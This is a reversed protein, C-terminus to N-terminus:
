PCAFPADRVLVFPVGLGNTYSKVSGSKTDTLSLGIEVDTLGAAYVAWRGNVACFDLTKVVVEVNDRGFFWFYGTDNTLPVAQADGSQGSYDRWTARVQFRSGNLCLTRGDATCTTGSGSRTWWTWLFGGGFGVQNALEKTAHYALTSGGGMPHRSGTEFLPRAVTTLLAPEGLVSSALAVSDAAAFLWNDDYPCMVSEDCYDWNPDDECLYCMRLTATAPDFLRQVIYDVRRRLVSRAAADDGLGAASRFVLYQGMASVMTTQINHRNCCVGTRAEVCDLYKALSAALDLYERDGTALYASTMAKIVHAGTRSGDAEEFGDCTWPDGTSCRRLGSSASCGGDDLYASNVARWFVADAAEIASDLVLLDGTLFAHLFMGPPAGTMSVSPNMYNRHPNVNGREDHYGHGYMGGDPWSRTGTRGRNKSHLLDVDAAHRAGATGLRWWTEDGTRLAQQLMGRLTDYKLNWPSSLVGATDFPEFDTPVDGYDVWGYHQAISLAELLHPATSEWPREAYEPSEAIQWDVGNEYDAFTERLRPSFLGAAGSRAVAEVPALLRTPSLASRARAGVDAAGAAHHRIWVTHTKFEGARLEHDRSFEGPFLGAEVAGGRARLAKPFNQWTEAVAVTVGGADLWGGLQNAGDSSSGDRTITSARKTVGSQLRPAESRLADWRADGSSEQVLALATAFTGTVDAGAGLEGGAYRFDKAGGAPFVLTLDDFAVSGPTGYANCDPQGDLWAYAALNELRFDLRAEALGRRFHVLLTFGLDGQVTGKVRVTVRERGSVPVDVTVGGAVPSGRYSIGGTGSFTTGDSLVVRDFLRFAAKSITYTAAGTEVVVESADNKAVRLPSTPDTRPTRVLRLALSGSPALDTALDLLLWAVPKSADTPAGGWRALVTGQFPVSAAGNLLTLSTPDTLADSPAFPVGWTVPVNTRTESLGNSITLDLPLDARSAAPLLLGSLLAAGLVRRGSDPKRNLTM